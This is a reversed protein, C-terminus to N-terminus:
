DTPCSDSLFTAFSKLFNFIVEAKSERSHYLIKLHKNSGYKLGLIVASGSVGGHSMAM